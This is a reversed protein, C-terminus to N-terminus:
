RTLLRVRLSRANPLQSTQESRKRRYLRAGALTYVHLAHSAVSPKEGADHYVDDNRQLTQLTLNAHLM